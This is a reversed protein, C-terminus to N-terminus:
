FLAIDSHPQGFSHVFIRLNRSTEQPYFEPRNLKLASPASTKASSRLTLRKALTRKRNTEKAGEAHVEADKANLGFLGPMRSHCNGMVFTSSAIRLAKAGERRQTKANFVKKM